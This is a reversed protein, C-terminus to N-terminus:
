VESLLKYRRGARSGQSTPTSRNSSSIQQSAPVYASAEKVKASHSDSGMTVKNLPMGLPESTSTPMSRTVMCWNCFDAYKETENPYWNSCYRHQYRRCGEGRCHFLQDKLGMDGCM